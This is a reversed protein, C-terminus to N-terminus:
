RKVKNIIEKATCFYKLTMLNWKNIITKIEMERLCLDLFVSRCYLDFHPRGVNGELVKINNCRINLDKIWKSNIKTHATLAHELIM